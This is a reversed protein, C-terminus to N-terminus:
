YDNARLILHCLHETFTKIPFYQLSIIKFFM